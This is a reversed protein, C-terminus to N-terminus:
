PPTIVLLAPPAAALPRTSTTGDPWRVALSRPPATLPCGFFLTAASQSYYGSGAQVEATQSSGDALEVTVRAGIADRNGPPGRLAVQFSRGAPSGANHWALSTGQNRSALFDPWGDADLDFVVLAKLDGPAVIGSDRGPVAIFGGRGDGRLFVGLGGEFRGTSVIPARSNQVALIDARGDGDFDGAALGQLPALQAPQPLPVFRFAGDPQSLFVGSRLETAEYRRAVALRDAGVVEALTARAYDDNKKFRRKLDPIQTALTRLTRRPYLKGGEQYAEVLQSAPSSGFRGVFLLAPARYPTNLGVNGVVYDPRRDGNFDASALSTWWGPGAAAFGARASEDVFARGGENRFYKVGGWELALVLDPWGDQDVDSWLASSVMGVNRLAPALTETVDEFRGGTNRLLASAPEQPYRGPQVRGGVFVDLDGDHDFDAAIAAGASIPMAPVADAAPVLSGNGQNLHLVPQYAASGAPRNTGARTEFLDTRGDGNFDALLLPGNDVVAPPLAAAAAFGGAGLRIAAPQRSTGGVVVDLVGDGDLDGLALAPGRRDFHMPALPQSEPEFNDNVTWALGRAAGVEEFQTRPPAAPPSAVAAGAPETITYRQDAALDKFVQRHGSPWELTLRTIKTEEGLGFHLVPESSSLYGRALVLQRVQEGAATEIRAVTGVGFRNSVTGRLALIVRHGTQGDNRLVTPPAEHNAYVLDLDGDGDLDGFAVGYSIGEQDLGWARGTEIFHGGGENRYALNRERLPPSDRMLRLREASSETLIIRDRLDTNQYERNMGNTVHLDVWGDNDLDEFRVSWTWDTAQIGALTAAEIMRGAGTNLYLTSRVVQSSLEPSQSDERTLERSTAMGRQDKEHTTAAMDAVTLDFWGDNDVDGLDAGMASYPMAPVVNHIVDRFTGNGQNRYLRDPGAFDNALYLDPWGDQDYDWWTASHALTEGAIGATASVDVFRGGGVNHFLRDPRGGSQHAADLLNTQVFVDLWGDRDYDCFAGMGSADVLALGRAEAEERFKGNRQNMYLRNPAGFRCVYLDLWGDNDVDAFAVGQKWHGVDDAETAGVKSKLWSFAGEEPALGASSTVDEFRWGGLNRYLRDRGTKSVIYIDPRGDNDYDGIAVGTGISGTTFELFREVWMAPDAYENIATLGTQAAPLETFLTNGGPQSRGALPASAIEAPAAMAAVGAWTTALLCLRLSRAGPFAVPPIRMGALVRFAFIGTLGRKMRVSAGIAGNGNGATRLAVQIPAVRQM